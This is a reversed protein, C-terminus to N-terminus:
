VDASVLESVSLYFDYVAHMQRAAIRAQADDPNAAAIGDLSACDVELHAATLRVRHDNWPLSEERTHAIRYYPKGVEPRETTVANEGLHLRVKRVFTYVDSRHAFKLLKRAKEVTIGDRAAKGEAHLDRQHELADLFTTM